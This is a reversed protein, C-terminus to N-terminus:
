LNKNGQMHMNKGAPQVQSAGGCIVYIRAPCTIRPHSFSPRQLHPPRPLPSVEPRAFLWLFDLGTVWLSIIGFSDVNTRAM